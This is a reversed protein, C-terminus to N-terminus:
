LQPQLKDTPNINQVQLHEGHGEDSSVGTQHLRRLTVWPGAHHQHLQGFLSSEGISHDINDVAFM